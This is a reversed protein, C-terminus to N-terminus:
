LDADPSTGRLVVRNNGPEAARKRHAEVIEAQRELEPTVGFGYNESVSGGEDEVNDLQKIEDPVFYCGALILAACCWAVAALRRGWGGDGTV